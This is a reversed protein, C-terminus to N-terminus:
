CLVHGTKFLQTVKLQKPVSHQIVKRLHGLLLLGCPLHAFIVKPLLVSCNLDTAKGRLDKFMCSTLFRLPLVAGRTQIHKGRGQNNWQVWDERAPHQAPLQFPNTHQRSAPCHPHAPHCPSTPHQLCCSLLHTGGSACKNVQWGGWQLCGPLQDRTPHPRGGDRPQLISHLSKEECKQGTEGRDM